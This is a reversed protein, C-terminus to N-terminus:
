LPPWFRFAAYGIMTREIRCGMKGLLDLVANGQLDDSASSASTSEPRRLGRRPSPQARGTAMFPWQRARYGQGHRIRHRLCDADVRSAGRRVCCQHSSWRNRGCAV